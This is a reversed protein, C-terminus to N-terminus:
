SHFKFSKRWFIKKFIFFFYFFLFNGPPFLPFIDWNILCFVRLSIIISFIILIKEATSFSIQRILGQTWASFSWNKPTLPALSFFTSCVQAAEQSACPFHYPSFFSTLGVAFARSAAWAHPQCRGYCKHHSQLGSANASTHSSTPHESNPIPFIELPAQSESHCIFWTLFMFMPFGCFPFAWPWLLSM